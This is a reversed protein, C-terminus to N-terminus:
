TKARKQMKGEKSNFGSLSYIILTPLINVSGTWTARKPTFNLQLGKFTVPRFGSMMNCRTRRGETDDRRKRYVCFALEMKAPAYSRSQLEFWGGLTRILALNGSLRLQYPSRSARRVDSAGRADGVLVRRARATRARLQRLALFFPLLVAFYNFHFPVLRFHTNQQVLYPQVCDTRTTKINLRKLFPPILM